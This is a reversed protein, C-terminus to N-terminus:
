VLVHDLVSGLRPSITEKVGARAPIHAETRRSYSWNASMIKKVHLKSASFSHLPYIHWRIKSLSEKSKVKKIHVEELYKLKGLPLTLESLSYLRQGLM